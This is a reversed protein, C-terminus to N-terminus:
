NCKPERIFDAVRALERLGASGRFTASMGRVRSLFGCSTLVCTENWKITQRQERLVVGLRERLQCAGRERPLRVKGLTQRSGLPYRWYARRRGSVTETKAPREPDKRSTGPRTPYAACATNEPSDGPHEALQTTSPNRRSRPSYGALEIPAYRRTAACDPCPRSANAVMPQVEGHTERPLAGSCPSDPSGAASGGANDTTRSPKPPFPRYGQGV